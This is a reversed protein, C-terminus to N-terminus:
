PEIIQPGGPCMSDAIKAFAIAIAYLGWACAKLGGDEKADWVLADDINDALDELVEDYDM